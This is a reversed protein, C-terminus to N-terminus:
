DAAARGILSFGKNSNDWHLDWKGVTGDSLRVIFQGPHLATFTRPDVLQQFTETNQNQLLELAPNSCFVLGAKRHNTRKGIGCLVSAHVNTEM